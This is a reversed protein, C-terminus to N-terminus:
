PPNSMVLLTPDTSQLFSQWVPKFLEMAEERQSIQQRLEFNSYALAAIIALVAFAALHPWYKWGFKSLPATTPTAISAPAALGFSSEFDEKPFGSSQDARIFCPEYSGVPIEIRIEDGVGETQYYRELKERVGHAGVRVIPDTAPNYSNNRDFVEQGILFENLEGGRGNLYFECILRLFRQKM